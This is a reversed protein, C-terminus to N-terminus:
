SFISIKFNAPINERGKYFVLIREGKYKGDKEKYWQSDQFEISWSTKLGVSMLRGRSRLIPILTNVIM